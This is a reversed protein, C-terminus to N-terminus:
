GFKDYVKIFVKFLNSKSCKVEDNPPTISRLKWERLKPKELTEIKFAKSLFNFQAPASQLTGM